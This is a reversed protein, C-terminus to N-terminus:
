DLTLTDRRSPSGRGKELAGSALSTKGVGRLAEIRLVAALDAVRLVVILLPMEMEM